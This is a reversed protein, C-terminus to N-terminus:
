IERNGEAEGSLDIFADAMGEKKIVETLIIYQFAFSYVNFYSYLFQLSVYLFYRGHRESVLLIKYSVRRVSLRWIWLCPIYAALPKQTHQIETSRRKILRDWHGRPRLRPDAAARKSPDHTRIQRDL